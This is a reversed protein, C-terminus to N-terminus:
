KYMLMPICTTNGLPECNTRGNDTLDTLNLIIVWGLITKTILSNFIYALEIQINKEKLNAPQKQKIYIQALQIGGFILYLTMVAFIAFTVWWPPQMETMGISFLYHKIIVGGYASLITVWGTFHVILGINYITNRYKKAAKKAVDISQLKNNIDTLYLIYQESTLISHNQRKSVNDTACLLAENNAICEVIKCDLGNSKSYNQKLMGFELLKDDFLLEVVLGLVMTVFSLIVISFLANYEDIGSVLAICILMLTASVSYEVFRWSNVGREKINKVYEKNSLSCKAYCLSHLPIGGQFLFSLFHFSFILLQLSVTFTETKARPNVLFPETQNNEMDVSLIYQNSPCNHISIDTDNLASWSAYSEYIPYSQDVTGPLAYTLTANILHMLAAIANWREFNELQNLNSCTLGKFSFCKCAKQKKCTESTQTLNHLLPKKENELSVSVVIVKKDVPFRLM